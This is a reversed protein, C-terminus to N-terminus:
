FPFFYLHFSISWPMLHVKWVIGEFSNRLMVVHQCCFCYFLLIIEKKTITMNEKLCVWIWCLIDEGTFFLIKKLKLQVLVHHWELIVYFLFDLLVLSTNMKRPYQTPSFSWPYIGPQVCTRLLVVVFLAISQYGSKPQSYLTLVPNKENSRGLM